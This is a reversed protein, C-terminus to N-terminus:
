KEGLGLNFNELLLGLGLGPGLVLGLDRMLIHGHILHVELNLTLGLRLDLGQSLKLGHDVCM